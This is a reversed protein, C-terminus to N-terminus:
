SQVESKPEPMRFPSPEIFGSRKPADGRKPKPEEISALVLDAITDRVDYELAWERLVEASGKKPDAWHELIREAVYTDGDSTLGEPILARCQPCHNPSDTESDAFVPYGTKRDEETACDECVLEGDLVYAIVDACNM